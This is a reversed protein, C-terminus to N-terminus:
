TEQDPPTDLGRSPLETLSTWLGEVWPQAAMGALMAGGFLLAEATGAGLSTLAPGPCYGGIGWGVGFLTAGVLLRGDVGGGTPAVFRAGFAVRERRAAWAYLPAFLLIAGGMVFALSPDWDGTFDLFAIVKRPKTMGALALGVAFIAGTVAAALARM